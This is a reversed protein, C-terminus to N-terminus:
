NQWSLFMASEGTGPTKNLKKGQTLVNEDHLGKGGQNDKNRKEETPSLRSRAKPQKQWNCQSVPPLMYRTKEQAYMHPAYTKRMDTHLSVTSTPLGGTEDSEKLLTEEASGSALKAELASFNFNWSLWVAM